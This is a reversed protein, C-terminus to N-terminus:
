HWRRHAQNAASRRDTGSRTASRMPQSDLIEIPRRRSRGIDIIRRDHVARPPLVTHRSARWLAEDQLHTLRRCAQKEHRLCGLADQIAAVVAWAYAVRRSFIKRDFARIGHLACLCDIWLIRCSFPKRVVSKGIDASSIRIGIYFGFSKLLLPNCHLDISGSVPTAM